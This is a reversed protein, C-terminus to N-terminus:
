LKNNLGQPGNPSPKLINELTLIKGKALSVGLGAM